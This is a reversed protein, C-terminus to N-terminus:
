SFRIYREMDAPFFSVQIHIKYVASGFFSSAVGTRTVALGGKDLLADACKM